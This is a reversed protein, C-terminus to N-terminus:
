SWEYKALEVLCTTINHLELGTKVEYQWGDMYVSVSENGGTGYHIDVWWNYKSPLEALRGKTVEIDAQSIM